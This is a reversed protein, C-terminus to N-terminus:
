RGLVSTDFNIENREQNDKHALIKGDNEYTSINGDYCTLVGSDIGTAIYVEVVTALLNWIQQVVRVNGYLGVGGAISMFNDDDIILDNDNDPSDSICQKKKLKENGYQIHKIDEVTTMIKGNYRCVDARLSWIDESHGSFRDPLPGLKYHYSLLQARTDTVQYFRIISPRHSTAIFGREALLEVESMFVADELDNNPGTTKGSIYEKQRLDMSAGLLEL